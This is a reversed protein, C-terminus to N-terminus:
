LVLLHCILKKLNREKEKKEGKANKSDRSLFFFICTFDTPM